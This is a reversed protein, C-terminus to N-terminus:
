DVHCSKSFLGHEWDFFRVPAGIARLLGAVVVKFERVERAPSLGLEALQGDEVGLETGAAPHEGAGRHIAINRNQACGRTFRQVLNSGVEFCLLLSLCQQRDSGNGPLWVEAVTVVVM